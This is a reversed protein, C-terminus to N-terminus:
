IRFLDVITQHSLVQAAKNQRVTLQTLFHLLLHREYLSVHSQIQKVLYLKILKGNSIIHDLGKVKSKNLKKVITM